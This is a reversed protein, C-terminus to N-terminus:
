KRWKCTPHNPCYREHCMVSKPNGWAPIRDHVISSAIELLGPAGPEGVLVDRAGVIQGEGIRQKDATLNTQLGIITAPARIPLKSGFEAVLEYVGMQAGHGQTKARGDTGVATKGTKLDKIGHDGNADRYVRDTTGTLVIGLDTLHLADVSVEVAVYDQKPAVETCYKTHLSRAVAEVKQPTPFQADDWSIDQEPKYIADVAAGEADAITVPSGNLTAQDFVATSKHIAQGLLSKPSSPTHKKMLHIAVWRSPCDFLSGFSSARITVPSM